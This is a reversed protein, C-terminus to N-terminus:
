KVTSDARRAEAKSMSTEPIQLLLSRIGPRNRREGDATGLVSEQLVLCRDRSDRSGDLSRLTRHDDPKGNWDGNLQEASWRSGIM